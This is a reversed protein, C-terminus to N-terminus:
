KKAPSKTPTKAPAKETTPTTAPAAAEVSKAATEEAAKAAQEQQLLKDQDKKIKAFSEALRKKKDEPTIITEANIEKDYKGADIDAEIEVAPKDEILVGLSVCTGVITKVASKMDKCLLNPFKTKALSIVQEISLNGVKVKKQTGSAREIKLEKKLKNSM